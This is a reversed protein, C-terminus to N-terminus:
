ERAVRKRAPKVPPASKFREVLRVRVSAPDTPVLPLQVGFVECTWAERGRGDDRPLAVVVREGPLYHPADLRPVAFAARGNGGPPPGPVGCDDEYHGRHSVPKPREARQDRHVKAILLSRIPRTM